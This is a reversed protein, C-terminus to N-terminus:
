SVDCLLYVKDPGVPVDELQLGTIATQYAQIEPIQQPQAMAVFDLDPPSSVVM